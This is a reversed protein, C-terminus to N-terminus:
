MGAYSLKTMIDDVKNANFSVTDLVAVLTVKITHRYMTKKM